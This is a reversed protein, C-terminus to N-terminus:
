TWIPTGMGYACAYALVVQLLKNDAEMTTTEPFSSLNDLKAALVIVWHAM